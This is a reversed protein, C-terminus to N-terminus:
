KRNFEMVWNLEWTKGNDTSFSQSWVPNDSVKWIFKVLIDINNFKDKGIFEGTGNNFSGVVPPQLENSYNDVWYISWLKTQPHYIRLSMGEFGKKFFDTKFVDCNSAGNLIKSVELTAEFEEWDNAAALRTKLRRNHVNWNGILFDFDNEGPHLAINEGNQAMININTFLIFIIIAKIPLIFQM